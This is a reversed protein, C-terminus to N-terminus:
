AISDVPAPSASSAGTSSRMTSSSARTSTSSRRLQGRSARATRRSRPPLCTRHRHDHGDDGVVLLVDEVRREGEVQVHPHVEHEGDVVPRLVPRALDELPIGSRAMHPQRAPLAVLEPLGRPDGLHRPRRRRLQAGVPDQVRVRVLEPPRPSLADSRHQRPNRRPDPDDATEPPHEKRLEVGVGRERLPHRDPERRDRGDVIGRARVPGRRLDGVSRMRVDADSHPVVVGGARAEYRKLAPIRQLHEVKGEPAAVLHHALVLGHRPRQRLRADTPVDLPRDVGDPLARQVVHEAAEARIGTRDLLPDLAADQDPVGAHTVHEPRQRADALKRALAIRPRREQERVVTRRELELSRAGIESVVDPKRDLGGDEGLGIM